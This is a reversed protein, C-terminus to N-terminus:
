FQKAKLWDKEFTKKLQALITTDTLFIGLERNKLLSNPSFNQSGVFGYAEDAIMAKAHIYLSKTGSNTRIKVGANRLRVFAERWGSAMTMILRVDVGREASAMLAGIIDEDEMLLNYIILNKEAREILAILDDKANPSWVLSDGYQPAIVEDNWDATFTREIAQVDASNTTLIGFERGTAYYKPTLNWTMILAKNGDVILTKQHTLAFSSPSWRVPINQSQFYEYMADNKKDPKGYYGHNLLVRIDLGNKHKHAIMDRVKTDKFDYAVLDISETASELLDLLPATGAEPQIILALSDSSVSISPLETRTHLVDIKDLYITQGLLVSSLTILGWLIIKFANKQLKNYM